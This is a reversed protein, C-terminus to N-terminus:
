KGLAGTVPEGGCLDPPQASSSCALRISSAAYGHDGYVAKRRATPQGSSVRGRGRMSTTRRAVSTAQVGIRTGYRRGGAPAGFSHLVSLKGATSLRKFSAAMAGLARHWEAVESPDAIRQELFESIYPVHDRAETQLQEM